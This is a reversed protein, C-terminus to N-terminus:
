LSKGNLFEKAVDAVSRHQQDVAANLKRMTTDSILGSLQLLAERLHPFRSLTEARIVIACQYPPFYHKDDALVTFAPDALFGDTQSGAGMEITGSRLAPYLLGLDMTIPDGKLRLGYTKQLGKLGDPREVFEYGVGLQWGQPRRAADSLTSLHQPQATKTLVVMAFTNNFGLPSLWSLHWQAYGQRVEELVTQPDRAIPKKLIATLATGTYEPYLDISGTKLAEHCLLTGGLDVKREVPIGTRNEIQQAIIEAMLVQETFNKSGVVIHPTSTCGTFLAFPVVFAAVWPLSM